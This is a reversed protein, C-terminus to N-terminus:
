LSQYVVFFQYAFFGALMLGGIRRGARGNGLYNYAILGLIVTFVAMVPYHIGLVDPSFQLPHIMGALGVVALLNFINSGIVNGLILGVEGKRASIVCVTLEPLSTGVAVITLGIILDSVGLATALSEAAWVLIWAGAMLVVLGSVIWMIASRPPVDKPIEAEYEGGVPDKATVKDLSQKKQQLIIITMILFFGALLAGGGTRSLSNDLLVFVTGITAILLLMMEVRLTQSSILLPRVLASAGIVLGINAINSGIANGIALGSAGQSSATASILIEPASTGFGLITIGILLPDVGLNRATAASGFVFKDAGWLLLVFGFLLALSYYLFMM